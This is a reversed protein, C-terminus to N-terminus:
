SPNSSRSHTTTLFLCLFRWHLETQMMLTFFILSCATVSASTSVPFILRRPAKLWLLWPLLPLGGLGGGHCLLPPLLCSTSLSLSSSSSLSSSALSSLSLCRLHLHALRSIHHRLGPHSACSSTSAATVLVNNYLLM